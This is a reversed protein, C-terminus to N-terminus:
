MIDTTNNVQALNTSHSSLLLSLFGYDAVILEAAPLSELSLLEKLDSSLHVVALSSRGARVPCENENVDGLM